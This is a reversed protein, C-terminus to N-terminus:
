KEEKKLGKQIPNNEDWPTLLPESNFMNSAGITPNAPFGGFAGIFKNQNTKQERHVLAAIKELSAIDMNNLEEDSFQNASNTKIITILENKKSNMLNMAYMLTQQVDPEANELVENFTLKKDPISISQTNSVTKNKKDMELKINKIENEKEEEKQSLMTEFLTFQDETMSLMVNEDQETFAKNTEMIAKVKEPCCDKVEKTEMKKDKGDKNLRIGCGDDWSCAGNTNPLIAMHDPLMGDVEFEYEEKKGDASNFTGKKFNGYVVGGTSVNIEKLSDFNPIINYLINKELFLLSKLKKDEFKTHFIEGIKFKSFIEPSEGILTPEGNNNSPHNLTAPKGNWFSINKAISNKTYLTPIGDSGIHVGEVLMVVPLVIYTKGNLIKEYRANFSEKNIKSIFVKREEFM